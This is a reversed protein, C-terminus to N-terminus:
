PSTSLSVHFLKPASVIINRMKASAKIKNAILILFSARPTANRTRNIIASPKSIVEILRRSNDKVNPM